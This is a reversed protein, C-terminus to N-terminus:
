KKKEGHCEKRHECKKCHDTIELVGTKSCWLGGDNNAHAYKM